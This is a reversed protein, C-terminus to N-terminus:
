ENARSQRDNSSSCNVDTTAVTRRVYDAIRHVTRFDDLDLKDMAVTIGFEKELRVLLDVLMLSDLLGGDILDVDDSPIQVHLYEDFLKRIQEKMASNDPM